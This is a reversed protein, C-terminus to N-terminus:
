TIKVGRKKFEDRIWLNFQSNIESIAIDWYARRERDFAIGDVNLESALKAKDEDSYYPLSHESNPSEYKMVDLDQNIYTYIKNKIVKELTGGFSDLFQNTRKYVSAPNPDYNYVNEEISRHIVFLARETVAHISEELIRNLEIDFQKQNTIKM